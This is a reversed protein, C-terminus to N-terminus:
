KVQCVCEGAADAKRENEETHNESQDKGPKVEKATHAKTTLEEKKSGGAAATPTEGMDVTDKECETKSRAQSATKRKEESGTNGTVKNTTVKQPGKEAESSGTQASGAQVKSTNAGGVNSKDGEKDKKKNKKKNKNKGKKGHPKQEQPNSATQGKNVNEKASHKPSDLVEIKPKTEEPSESVASQTVQLVSRIASQEVSGFLPAKRM